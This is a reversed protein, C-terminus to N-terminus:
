SFPVVIGSPRYSSFLFLFLDYPKERSEWADQEWGQLYVSVYVYVHARAHSLTAIVHVPLYIPQLYATVSDGILCPGVPQRSEVDELMTKAYIYVSSGVHAHANVYSHARTDLVHVYM